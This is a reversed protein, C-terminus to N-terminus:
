PSLQSIRRVKGPPAGDGGGEVGEEDWQEGGSVSLVSARRARGVERESAPRDRERPPPMHLVASSECSVVGVAALGAVAHATSAGAPVNPLTFDTSCAVSDAISDAVSGRRSFMPAYFSPEGTELSIEDAYYGGTAAGYCRGFYGWFPLLCSAPPLPISTLPRGALNVPKM